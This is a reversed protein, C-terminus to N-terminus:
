RSRWYPRVTRSGGTPRNAASWWWGCPRRSSNRNPPGAKSSARRYRYRWAPPSRWRSTRASSSDAFSRVPCSCPPAPAWPRRRIDHPQHRAGEARAIGLFAAGKQALAAAAAQQALLDKGLEDRQAAVGEIRALGRRRPGRVLQGGAGDGPHVLAHDRVKRVIAIPRALGALQRRRARAASKAASATTAAEAAARRLGAENHFAAALREILQNGAHLAAQQHRVEPVYAEDVLLRQLVGAQRAVAQEQDLVSLDRRRHHVEAEQFARHSQKFFVFRRPWATRTRPSSPPMIIAGASTAM